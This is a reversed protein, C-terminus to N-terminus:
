IWVQKGDKVMFYKNSETDNTANRLYFVANSPVQFHVRNMEATKKELVKWDDGNWYYLEYRNGHIIRNDEIRPLYHIEALVQPTGLDLGTWAYDAEAADFYTYIDDDFAKDKTAPSNYWSGSTGIRRGDLKRGNKGWFQIESVNCHGGKPSVYRLYRYPTLDTIGVKEYDSGPMDKIIYLVKKDYFDMRNAGEFVGQQMRYLWPHDKGADSVILTECKEMDPQFVRLQGSDDLRFPYGAPTYEDNQYSVPLYLVNKGIDSFSMKGDEIQGWGVVASAEKGMSLLYVYKGVDALNIIPLEVNFNCGDYESSVDKMYRNKLEFPILSDAENIHNQRAFTNRYVKSKRLRTGLHYDGPNTEVGMFSIHTGSSDCVSNWSHGLKRNPWQITFDRTVPIGLARMVFIALAGMEDCTGRPTSMLMSYNMAPMPTSVWTFAPLQKNVMGCAEVATIDPHEKFYNNMDAFAILIKERWNELPEKGVRYPLIEECFVDFSINKGWPQEMWVKFALEINNILYESTIFKVDEEVKLEGWDHKVLLREEDPIDNWRYLASAINQWPTNYYESYKGEMNAILFQAAKLKLSDAPNKSYHELVGELQKCNDGAKSLGERIQFPNDTRSNCSMFFLFVLFLIFEKM